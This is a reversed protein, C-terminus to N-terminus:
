SRKAEVIFMPDNTGAGRPSIDVAQPQGFGGAFHIYNGLVRLHAQDTPDATWIRVAKTFFFRNSQSLILRGGPRLVRAVERM